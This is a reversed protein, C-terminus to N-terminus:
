FTVLLGFQYGDIVLDSDYALGGESGAAALVSHRYGAFLTVDQFPVTYSLRAEFDQQTGDLDGTVLGPAIAYELDLAVNKLGARVRAAPYFAEGTEHVSQRRLGDDSRMRMTLDRHAYIGGVAVRLDLPQGRFALKEAVVSETWGIRWEDMTAAMGVIDGALLAGFDDTLVGTRSTNMTLRYYDLRLGAFGDGIDARVGVDDEHSGFGFTRLSQAANDQPGTGPDNQLAVSGRLQYESLYPSVAIKPDAMVPFTECSALIVVAGIALTRM